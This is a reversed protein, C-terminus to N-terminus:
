HERNDVRVIIAVYGNNDRLHFRPLTSHVYVKGVGQGLYLPQKQYVRLEVFM